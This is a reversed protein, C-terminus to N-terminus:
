RALRIGYDEARLELPPLAEGDVVGQLWALLATLLNRNAALIPLRMLLVDGRANVIVSHGAEGVRPRIALQQWDVSVGRWIQWRLEEELSALESFLQECLSRAQQAPSKGAFLLTVERYSCRLGAPSFNWEVVVPPPEAPLPAVPAGLPQWQSCDVQQCFANLLQHEYVPQEAKRPHSLMVREGDIVLMPVDGAIGPLIKVAVASQAGALRAELQLLTETYREVSFAWAQRARTAKDEAAERRALDAEAYYVEVLGQLALSAFLRREEEQAGGLAQVIQEYRSPAAAEPGTDAGSHIGIAWLSLPAVMRFLLFHPLRTVDMIRLLLRYLARAIIVPWDFLSYRGKIAGM